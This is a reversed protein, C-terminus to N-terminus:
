ACGLISGFENAKKETEDLLIEAKEYQGLTMFVETLFTSALLMSLPEGTTQGLQIAETLDPTTIDGLNLKALGLFAKSRSAEKLNGATLFLRASENLYEASISYSGASYTLIGATLYTRARINPDFRQISPKDNEAHPTINALRMWEFAEGFGGQRLWFLGLYGVLQWCYDLNGNEQSASHALRLNDYERDFWNHAALANVSWIVPNCRVQKPLLISRMYSKQEQWNM